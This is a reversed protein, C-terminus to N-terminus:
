GKRVSITWGADATAEFNTVEHGDTAAWRPIADTAQTCDFDIVLEDGSSLQQMANKAEILPFPCVAGLTDLAFRREGVRRLGGRLKPSVDNPGGDAPRELVSVAPLGVATAFGGANLESDAASGGASAGVLVPERESSQRDGSEALVASRKVAGPEPTLDDVGAGPASEDSAPAPALDGASAARTADATSPSLTYGDPDQPNIPEAPKLWLKAAFGVGLAIFLLAGWGQYSFLSTQVMGNGVTCGGAWAAGVGMLVGGAVSRVAQTGSPVRVRFEGSAKAALYSGILIGLVLLAGWNIRTADGTTVFRVLDSSPTTIGLGDNRGTAASLPWAIVGLVGVIAGTTYVHWPKEAVLHALGTKKAALQAIKPQTAEVRVFKAVLFATLVALPLALAWTSVGLSQQITTLPVTYERLTTNIGQLAGAKMAAASLGYTLLAIWSGVLGEGSRYWTGSACGGALVIGVGFLFGGIIVAFPAFDDVEPTIVGLSTLAALGVAHVAIVVLLAVFGRWTKLTFIDRLMGTVCFRGRQMVYGLVTGLMLGTILM